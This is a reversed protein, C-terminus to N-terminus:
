EVVQGMRLSEGLHRRTLSAVLVPVTLFVLVALVGWVKFLDDWPAVPLVPPVGAHPGVDTTLLFPTILKSVLIGVVGGAGAGAGVVLVHEVVLIVGLQGRSLGLVRLVSFETARRRYALVAYTGFGLLTLLIGCLFGVSLIGFTGVRLPDLKQKEVLLRADTANQVFFGQDQLKGQLTAVALSPQIRFWIQQAPNGLSEQLYENNAVVYTGDAPYITPFYDVVGVVVFGLPENGNESSLTLASGPQLQAADAFRRDVLVGSPNTALNNMLQGLSNPAFDRRFWSAAPFSDRDIGVVRIPGYPE